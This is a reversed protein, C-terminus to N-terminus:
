NPNNITITPVDVEFTKGNFTLILKSATITGAVRKTDSNNAGSINTMVGIFRSCDGDATWVFSDTKHNTYDGFYGNSNTSYRDVMVVEGGGSKTFTLKANEADGMKDITLTAKPVGNGNNYSYKHGQYKSEEPGSSVGNRTGGSYSADDIHDCKFYIWATKGSNEIRSLYQTNNAKAIHNTNTHMTYVYDTFCGGSQGKVTWTDKISGDEVLDVSYAGAGDMTIDSIVVTPKLSSVTIKPARAPLDYKNASTDGPNDSYTHTTGNVDFSLRTYYDGAFRAYEIEQQVFKTGKEDPELNIVVNDVSIGTFTYQGYASSSGKYIFELKVNEIAPENENNLIEEGYVNEINVNMGSVPQETMFEASVEGNTEGLDMSNDKEFYVNVKEVVQTVHGKGSMDICMISDLDANNSLIGTEKDYDTTVFDGDANYYDWVYVKKMTWTGDQTDTPGDPIKFNWTTISMDQNNAPNGYPYVQYERGNMELVAMVKATSSNGIIVNMTVNGNPDFVYPNSTFGIYSPPNPSIIRFSPATTATTLINGGADLYSFKWVGPGGELTKLNGEYFETSANWELNADMEATTGQASYYLVVDTLNEMEEGSNDTIIAQISLLKENDKLETPVYKFEIPSNTYLKVRMGLTVSASLCMGSDLYEYNGDLIIYEMMYDGSSIFNARGRWSNTSSNYIFNVNVTAGDSLMFIGQAKKPQKDPNNTALKLEIEAYGSNGASLINLSRGTISGSSAKYSVDEVAFGSVEVKLDEKLTYEQGDLEVSRLIYNGPVKFEYSSTWSGDDAKTFTMEKERSGQSANIQRIFFAKVTGPQDGTINVKVNTIMPETATDYDFKKADITASVSRIATELKEDDMPLLKVTNGFQINLRGEIEAASLVDENNLLAGDLYVIATIRTAVNKELKTIARVTNGDNDEFQVSDSSLVMPVTVRGIEKFSKDTDMEAIALLTGNGDIFAVKLSKLLELSRAQDEPTDAYYVYCSGNGQTTADITIYSKDETDWIRNEGEYGIVTIVEESKLVPEKGNLDSESLRAHTDARFWADELIENGEEDVGTVYQGQYVEIQYPNLNGEEDTYSQDLTYIDVEEGAKNKGKVQVNESSTLVNGELTLFSNASNTRVWFDLVMGYTDKAEISGQFEATSDKSNNLDTSFIYPSDANTTIMAYISAERAFGYRKGTAKVELGKGGSYEPGVNMRAGTRKEFNKLVGNTIVVYCTKDKLNLAATAGIEDVTKKAFDPREVTCTGIKVLGDIMTKLCPEVTANQTEQTEAIHSAGRWYVTGQKEIEQLELYDEHVLDYDSKFTKFDTIKFGLSALEEASLSMLTKGTYKTFNDNGNAYFQQLNVIQALAEAEEEFATMFAGYMEILAKLQDKEITPNNYSKGGNDGKNMKDTMYTGMIYALAEMYDENQTLQIYTSRANNNATTAASEYKRIYLQDGTANIKTSSVARVGVGRSPDYVFAGEVVGDSEKWNTYRYDSNLEEIRGEESYAAGSLPSTLLDGDNLQAPRLVIKDLGYSPDGLNILNGWTKNANVINQGEAAISDGVKSPDPEKTGDGTALAIELSGNAAINTSVATVEPARSITLWAYSASTLMIVSIALLFAVATVKERLGPLLERYAEIRKQTETVM